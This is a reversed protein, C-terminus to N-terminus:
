ELDNDLGEYREWDPCFQLQERRLEKKLFDLIFGDIRKWIYSSFRVPRFEGQRNRYRLNYTKIKEYLILVAQDLMDEGFRDIHRPFTKKYIRFVIFSIHRLVLEETEAQCGKKAKAILRREAALDLKPYRPLVRYYSNWV